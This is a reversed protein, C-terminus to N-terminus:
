LVPPLNMFADFDFAGSGSSQTPKALWLEPSHVIKEAPQSSSSYLSSHTRSFVMESASVAGYITLPNNCRGATTADALADQEIPTNGVACSYFKGSGSTEFYGHITTVDNKVMINKGTDTYVDLRPIEAINGYGGYSIGEIVVDSESFIQIHKGTGLTGTLHLPAAGSYTYNKGDQASALNFLTTTIAVPVGPLTGTYHVERVPAAAFDGGYKKTAIDKATNAFGLKSGDGVGTNLERGTIFNKIKNAALAAGGSGAGFLNPAGDKNWSQISGNASYLDGGDIQFYPKKVIVFSKTCVQKETAGYYYTWRLTYTNTTNYGPGGVPSVTRVYVPESTPKSPASAGFSTKISGGDLVEVRMQPNVPTGKDRVRVTVTSPNAEDPYAPSWSTNACSILDEAKQFIWRMDYKKGPYFRYNFSAVGYPLDTYYGSANYQLKAVTCDTKGRECISYGKLDWGTLFDTEIDTIRYTGTASVPIATGGGSTASFEFPNAATSGASTVSVELPDLAPDRKDIAAPAAPDYYIKTGYLEAPTTLQVRISFINDGTTCPGPDRIDSVDKAPAPENEQLACKSGSITRQVTGKSTVTLNIVQGATFPTAQTYNFTKVLRAAAGTVYGTTSASTYKHRYTNDGSDDLETDPTTNTIRFYGDTIADSIVRCRYAIENLQLEVTRSGPVVEVVTGAPNGKPSIWSDQVMSWTPKDCGSSIGTIVSPPADSSSIPKPLYASTSGPSAITLLGLWFFVAGAFVGISRIWFTRGV